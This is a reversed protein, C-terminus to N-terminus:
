KYLCQKTNQKCTEFYLLCLLLRYIFILKSHILQKFQLAVESISCTRSSNCLWSLIGFLHGMESMSQVIWVTMLMSPISKSSVYFCNKILMLWKTGHEIRHFTFITEHDHGSHLSPLIETNFYVAGVFSIVSLKTCLVIM